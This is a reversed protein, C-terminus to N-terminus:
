LAKVEDKKKKKATATTKGEFCHFSFEQTWVLRASTKVVVVDEVAINSTSILAGFAMATHVGNLNWKLGTTVADTAPGGFPM